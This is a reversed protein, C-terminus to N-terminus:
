TKRIRVTRDAEFFIAPVLKRTHGGCEVFPNRIFNCNVDPNTCQTINNCPRRNFWCSACFSDSYKAALLNSKPIPSFM